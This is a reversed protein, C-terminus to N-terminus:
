VGDVVSPSWGAEANGTILPLGIGRHAIEPTAAIAVGGGGGPIVSRSAPSQHIHLLTDLPHIEEVISFAGGTSEASALIAFEMGLYLPREGGGAEVKHGRAQTSAARPPDTEAAM